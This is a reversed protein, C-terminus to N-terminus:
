TVKRHLGGDVRIRQGTLYRAAESCLFAAPNAVDQPDGKAINDRAFADPFRGRRGARQPHTQPSRTPRTNHM